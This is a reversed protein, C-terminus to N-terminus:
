AKVRIARAPAGCAITASPISKTVVSGAGIVSGDGITVGALIVANGGIWVNEGIEVAGYGKGSAQFPVDPDIRHGSSVIVVNPGIITGRKIRVGGSGEVYCGFNMAVREHLVIGSEAMAHDIVLRCGDYIRVGDHLELGIGDAWKGGWLTVNRGVMVGSGVVNAAERLQAQIEEAHDRQVILPDAHDIAFRRTAATIEEAVNDRVAEWLLRGLLRKFM